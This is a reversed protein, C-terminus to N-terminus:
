GCVVVETDVRVVARFEVVMLSLVVEEGKVLVVVELGVVVEDMTTVVEVLGALEVVVEALEVGLGLLV